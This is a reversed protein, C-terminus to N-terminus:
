PVRALFVDYAKRGDESRQAAGEHNPDEIHHGHTDVPGSGLEPNLYVWFKFRNGVEDYNQPDYQYVLSISTIGFSELTHLEHPRSHCPSDPSLYCHTDIWLRLKKWIADQTDLIQDGTGGQQPLDYWGLAIFGNMDHPPLNPDTYDSHPTKSGFLETGDKIVGDGDRDYVLWANGSAALPWSLKLPKGDGMIDFTVYHGEQPNSFAFGTKATDIVIPSTNQDPMWQWTCVNYNWEYSGTANQTNPHKGHPLCTPPLTVGTCTNTYSHKDSWLPQSGTDVSYAGVPSTATFTIIANCAFACSQVAFTGETDATASGGLNTSAGGSVQTFSMVHHDMITNLKGSESQSGDRSSAEANVNCDTPTYPNPLPGSYTCTGLPMYIWSHGGTVHELTNSNTWFSPSNTANYSRCTPPGYQGFIGGNLGIVVVLALITRKVTRENRGRGIHGSNYEAISSYTIVSTNTVFASCLELGLNRCWAFRKKKEHRARDLSM